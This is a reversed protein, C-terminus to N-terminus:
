AQGLSGSYTQESSSKLVLDGKGKSEEGRINAVKSFKGLFLALCAIVPGLLAELTQCKVGVSEGQGAICQRHQVLLWLCSPDYKKRGGLTPLVLLIVPMCIPDFLICIPDLAM